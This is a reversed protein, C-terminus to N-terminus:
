RSRPFEGDPNGCVEHLITMFRCLNPFTVLPQIGHDGSPFYGGKGLLAPVKSM